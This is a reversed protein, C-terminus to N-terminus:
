FLGCMDRPPCMILRSGIRCCPGSVVYSRLKDSYFVIDFVKSLATICLAKTPMANSILEFSGGLSKIQNVLVTEDEDLLMDMSMFDNFVSDVYETVDDRRTVTCKGEVIDVTFGIDKCLMIVDLDRTCMTGIYDGFYHKLTDSPEGTAIYDSLDREFNLICKYEFRGKATNLNM